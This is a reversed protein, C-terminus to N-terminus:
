MLEKNAEILHDLDRRDILTRRITRGDNARPCPLKVVPIMGSVVCDRVTWYSLGLYTAAARLDLLRACSENDKTGNRGEIVQIAAKMETTQM